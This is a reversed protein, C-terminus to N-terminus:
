PADKAKILVKIVPSAFRKRGENHDYYVMIKIKGCYRRSRCDAPNVVTDTLDRCIAALSM